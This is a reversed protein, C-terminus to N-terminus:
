VKEALSIPPAYNKMCRDDLGPIVRTLESVIEKSRNHWLHEIQEGIGILIGIARSAGDLTQIQQAEAQQQVGTGDPSLRGELFPKPSFFLSTTFQSFVPTNTELTFKM